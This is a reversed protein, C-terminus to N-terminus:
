ESILLSTNIYFKLDYDIQYLDKQYVKFICHFRSGGSSKLDEVIVDVVILCEISTVDGGLSIIIHDDESVGSSGHGLCLLAGLFVGRGLSHEGWNELSDHLFGTNVGLEDIVDTNTIHELWTCTGM